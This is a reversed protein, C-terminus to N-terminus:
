IRRTQFQKQSLAPETKYFTNLDRILSQVGKHVNYQLLHWDLSKQFNWETVKDLNRVKFCCNLELIHLCTVICYIAFKCITAM